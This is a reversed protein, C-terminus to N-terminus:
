RPEWPPLGRSITLRQVAEEPGALASAKWNRQEPRCGLARRVQRDFRQPFERRYLQWYSAICGGRRRLLPLSPLADGKDRNVSPLSPLLNWLDNNGWVTYPITHDVDFARLIAEGMWVCELRQGTARLARQVEQTDRKDLPPTLLIPLFDALTRGRNM